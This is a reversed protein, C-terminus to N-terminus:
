EAPPSSQAASSLSDAVQRIWPERKEPKVQAVIKELLDARKLNYSVLAPNPGPAGDGHPADKDLANLQDLLPQLEKDAVEGGAPAVVDDPLGAVPADILRWAPGVQIIEGTQIWENKGNTECLITGGAYKVI